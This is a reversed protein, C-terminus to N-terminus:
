LNSDQRCLLAVAADVYAALEPGDPTAAPAARRLQAHGLFASYALLSRARAAPPDFGLAAFCADLYAM